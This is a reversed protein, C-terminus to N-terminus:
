HIGKAKCLRQFEGCKKDWFDWGEPTERWTLMETIIRSVGREEIYENITIASFCKSQMNYYRPNAIYNIFKKYIGNDKLFRLLLKRSKNGKMQKIM